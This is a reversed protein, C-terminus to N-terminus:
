ISGEQELRFFELYGRAQFQEVTGWPYIRSLPRLAMSWYAFLGIVFCIRHQQLTGKM